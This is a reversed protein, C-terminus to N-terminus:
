SVSALTIAAVRAPATKYASMPNKRNLQKLEMYIGERRAIENPSLHKNYGNNKISIKQFLAIVLAAQRKKLILREKIQSLFM